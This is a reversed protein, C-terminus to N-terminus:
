DGGSRLARLVEATGLAHPESATLLGINPPLRPASARGVWAFEVVADPLLERATAAMAVDGTSDGFVVVREPQRGADELAFRAGVAKSLKPALVDLAYTSMAARCGYASALRHCEPFLRELADRARAAHGAIDPRHLSEFTATAEKTADWEVLDAVGLEDILLVLAERLAQAVAHEQSLEWAGGTMRGRRLAGMEAAFCIADPAQSSWYDAIVSELNAELWTRSRGTIFALSAGQTSFALLQEVVTADVRAHEDTVVGDVDILLSLSRLDDM